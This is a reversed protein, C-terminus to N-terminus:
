KKRWMNLEIPKFLSRDEEDIFSIIMVYKILLKPNSQQLTPSLDVSGLNIRFPIIEGKKPCSNIVEVKHLIEEQTITIDPTPNSIERKLIAVQIRKINLKIKEVTIKGVLCENLNLNTKNMLVDVKLYDAIKLQIEFATNGLMGEVPLQVAFEAGARIPDEFERVIVVKIYYRIRGSLGYYTEYRFEYNSFSFDYTEEGELKGPPKMEKSEFLFRESQDKEHYTQTEGILQVFIGRHELKKRGFNLIVKGSISLDDPTYVPFKLMNENTDYFLAHERDKAGELIIKINESSSIFDKAM